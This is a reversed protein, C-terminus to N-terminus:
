SGCMEEQIKKRVFKQLKMGIHITFKLEHKLEKTLLDPSLKGRSSYMGAEIQYPTKSRLALNLALARKWETQQEHSIINAEYLMAIRDLTPVETMGAQIALLRIGNVIPIYSGYKIDVGGADEGYRETLLQGFIGLSAKRHLTNHLMAQLIARHEMVYAFLYDKVQKVLDAAGYISRMDAVILLYRIHEWNPESLWEQLTQKWHILSKRWSPNSCMVDGDCPPYGVVKLGNVIKTSLDAFYSVAMAVDLDGTIEYILGNDQDSWLTQESRGGSGFLVFSYPVPPTGKGQEELEHEAMAICRQILRDHIDNMQHNWEIAHALLLDAQMIEHVQDRLVRLSAYDKALLIHERCTELSLNYVIRDGELL